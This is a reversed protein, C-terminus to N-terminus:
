YDVVFLFKLLNIQQTSYDLAEHWWQISRFITTSNVPVGIVNTPSDRLFKFFGQDQDTETPRQKTSDPPM